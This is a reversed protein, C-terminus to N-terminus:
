LCSTNLMKPNKSDYMLKSKEERGSSCAVLSILCSSLTFFQEHDIYDEAEM